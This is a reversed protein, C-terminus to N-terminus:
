KEDGPKGIVPLLVSAGVEVDHLLHHRPGPARPPHACGGQVHGPHGTASEVPVPLVSPRGPDLWPIGGGPGEEHTVCLRKLTGKAEGADVLEQLKSDTLTGGDRDKTDRVLVRGPLNDAVEM